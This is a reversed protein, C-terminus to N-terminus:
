EMSQKLTNKGGTPSSAQHFSLAPTIGPLGQEFVRCKSTHDQTLKEALRLEEDSIPTSTGM